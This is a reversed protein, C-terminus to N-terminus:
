IPCFTWSIVPCAKEGLLRAIRLHRTLASGFSGSNGVTAIEGM